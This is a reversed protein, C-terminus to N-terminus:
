VTFILPAYIEIQYKEQIQKQIIKGSVVEVRKQINHMGFGEGSLFLSHSQLNIMIEKRNLRLKWDATNKGYKLDNNTIEIIIFFLNDKLSSTIENIPNAAEEEISFHLKRNMSSYRRLLYTHIGSLFDKRLLELDEVYHMKSRISENIRRILQESETQIEQPVSFLKLKQNLLFLDSLGGGIYDHIDRFVNERETKIALEKELNHVQKISEFNEQYSAQLDRTREEVKVELQEKLEILQKNSLELLSSKDTLEITLSESIQFANSFKMSLMVAQFFVFILFGYPALHVTRIYGAGYLLDNVLILYFIMTGTFVLISGARKRKLAIIYVFTSYIISALLFLEMTFFIYSGYIKLPFFLTSLIALLSILYSFFLYSCSFEEPFLNYIYFLFIPVAIYFSLYEIRSLVLFSLTPFINLIYREEMLVIRSAILLCFIGFLFPSIDKKRMIYLIIHYFGMILLVGFTISKLTITKKQSEYIKDLHGITLRNWMGARAHHYNSILFVIELEEGQIGILPFTNYQLLPITEEISKGVKGVSYQLKNNIYLNYAMCIDTMSFGLPPEGSKLLVKLRYMAYGDTELLKGNLSYNQWESPVHIYHITETKQLQFFSNQQIPNELFVNWYFEWEGEIGLNGNTEFNYSRLDLIGKNAVPKKVFSDAPRINLFILIGLFLISLSLYINITKELM